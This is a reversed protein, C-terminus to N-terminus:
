VQLRGLRGRVVLVDGDVFVEEPQPDGPQDSLDITTDGLARGLPIRPAVHIAGDGVRLDTAVDNGLVRAYLEGDRIEFGLLGSPVSALAFTTDSSLRAEFTGRAAHPLAAGVRLDSWRLRVDELTIDLRDLDTTLDDLPVQVATVEARPLTGFLLRLTTPWGHLDVRAEAGVEESIRDAARQEAVDALLLDAALVLATAVALAAVAPLARIAGQEARRAPGPPTLARLPCASEGCTNDPRTPAM